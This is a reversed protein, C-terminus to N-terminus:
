SSGIASYGEPCAFWGDQNFALSPEPSLDTTPKDSECLILNVQPEPNETFFAIGTYSRLSQKKPQAVMQIMLEKSTPIIFKYIYNNTEDPIGMGLAEQSDLFYRQDGYYAQQGVLMAGINNRAESEKANTAGEGLFWVGWGVLLVALSVGSGMLFWTLRSFEKKSSSSDPNSM